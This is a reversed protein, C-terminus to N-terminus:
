GSGAKKEDSPSESPKIGKEKMYARIDEAITHLLTYFEGWFTEEETLPEKDRKPETKKKSM